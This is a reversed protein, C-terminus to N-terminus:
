RMRKGCQPCYRWKRDKDSWGEIYCDECASCTLFGKYKTSPVWQAEEANVACKECWWDDCPKDTYPCKGDFREKDGKGEEPMTPRHKCDRCRVVDEKAKAYGDAFGKDYQQRDYALARVLEAKDVSVGVNKMCKVIYNEQVKIVKEAMDDIIMTIPSEYM